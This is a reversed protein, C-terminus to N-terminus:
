KKKLIEDVGCELAEALRELHITSMFTGTGSEWKNVSQRSVGIRKALEAQTLGAAKRMCRIRSGIEEM